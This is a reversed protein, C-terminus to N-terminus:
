TAGGMSNSVVGWSQKMRSLLGDWSLLGLLQNVKKVCSNVREVEVARRRMLLAILAIFIAFVILIPGFVWLSGGSEDLPKVLALVGLALCLIALGIYIAQKWNALCHRHM